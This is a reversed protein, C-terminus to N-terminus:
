RRRHRVLVAVLEPLARVVTATDKRHARCIATVCVVTACVVALGLFLVFFTIPDFM